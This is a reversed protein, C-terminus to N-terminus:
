RSDERGRELWVAVEAPTMGMWRDNGDYGDNPGQLMPYNIEVVMEGKGSEDTEVDTPAPHGGIVRGCKAM